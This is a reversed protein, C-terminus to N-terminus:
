NESLGAREALQEQSLDAALRYRRLLAAFPATGATDMARRGCAPLGYAPPGCPVWTSADHYCAGGCRLPRPATTSCGAPPREDVGHRCSTTKWTSPATLVADMVLVRGGPSLGEPPRVANGSAPTGAPRRDQGPAVRPM